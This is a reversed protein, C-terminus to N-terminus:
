PKKPDPPIKPTPDKPKPPVVPVLPAPDLGAQVGEIHPEVRGRYTRRDIPYESLGLRPILWDHTTPPDIFIPSLMLRRVVNATAPRGYFLLPYRTRRYIPDMDTVAHICDCGNGLRASEGINDICQYGVEGSDLYAKHILFRHAFGHWVEYPGWMAIRQNTDLSNKISAHLEFNAGPEVRFNLQDIEIKTPLWSITHVDLASDICGPTVTGCQGVDSTRIRILTAWTHVYAPRGTADDSGWLLLFYREDPPKPIRDLDDATLKAAPTPVKKATLSCGCGLLVALATLVHGRFCASLM